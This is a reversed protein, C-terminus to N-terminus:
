EPYEEHEYIYDFWIESEERVEQENEDEDRNALCSDIFLDKCLQRLNDTLDNIGDEPLGESKLYESIAIIIRKLTTIHDLDESHGAAFYDHQSRIIKEGLGEAFTLENM